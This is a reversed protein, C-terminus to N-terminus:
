WMGREFREKRFRAHNLENEVKLKVANREGNGQRESRM